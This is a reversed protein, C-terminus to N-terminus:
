QNLHGDLYRYQQFIEFLPDSKKSPSAFMHLSNPPSIDLVFRGGDSVDGDSVDDDSVNDDSVGDDPADDM